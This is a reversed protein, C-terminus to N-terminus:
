EEAKKYVKVRPATELGASVADLCTDDMPLLLNLNPGSRGLPNSQRAGLGYCGPIGVVDPHFLESVSLRGETKGYRLHGFMM